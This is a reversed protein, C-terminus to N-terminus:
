HLRCFAASGQNTFVFAAVPAGNTATVWPGTALNTTTQLVYNSGSFPFYILMQGGAPAIGVPPAPVNNTNIINLSLQPSTATGGVSDTVQVVFSFQGSNTPTGSLLGNLNLNFNGPLSGSFISWNYPSPGGFPVGYSAQLPLTYAAGNTGNPLSATAVQLANSITASFQRNTTNGGGM